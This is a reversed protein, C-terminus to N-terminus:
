EINDPEHRIVRLETLPYAIHCLAVIESLFEPRDGLVEAYEEFIAPSAWAEIAGARALEYILASANDARTFTALKLICTDLVVRLM